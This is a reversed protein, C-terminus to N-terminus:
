NSWKYLENPSYVVGILSTSFINQWPFLLVLMIMASIFGRSIQSLGGIGGGFSASLCLFIILVYLMSAFVLIVNTFHLVPIIREFSIKYDFFSNGLTNNQVIVEDSVTERAVEIKGTYTLWFCMQLLVLCLIILIFLLNKWTRLTRTAQFISLKVETIKEKPIPKPEHKNLTDRDVKSDGVRNNRDGGSEWSRTFFLVLPGKTFISIGLSALSANTVQSLAVKGYNFVKELPVIILPYVLIYAHAALIIGAIAALADIRGSGDYALGTGPRYGTLGSLVLCAGFIISITFGIIPNEMDSYRKEKISMKLVCLNRSLCGQCFCQLQLHCLLCRYIIGVASLNGAQM